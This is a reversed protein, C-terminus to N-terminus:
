SVRGRLFGDLALVPGIFFLAYLAFAVGTLAISICMMILFFLLVFPGGVVILLVRALAGARPVLDDFAVTAGMASLRDLWHGVPPHFGVLPSNPRAARAREESQGCQYQEYGATALARIRDVGRRGAIRAQVEARQAAQRRYTRTEEAEPGVVFLHALSETGPILGGQVSLEAVGKAVGDPNRTLAVASADALESRARWARKLLPTVMLWSMTMQNMSFAMDASMVPLLLIDRYRTETSPEPKEGGGAGQAQLLVVSAAAVREPHHRASGPRIVLGLVAGVAQRVGRNTPASLVGAVLGLTLYLSTIARAIGLDGNGIRGVLHAIVGQTEDRSLTDLLGRSVVIAADAPSSGAMAANAVASDVLHVAPPPIGAALAIEEVVNVLQREELDGPAPPRAGLAALEYATGAHDLVRRGALWCAFLAVAGPVILALVLPIIISAADVPDGNLADRFPAMLDPTAVVLNVLASFLIAVAVLLPSIVASLPVGMIAVAGACALSWRWSRRRHRRQADEFSERDVPGPIPRWPRDTAGAAPPADM